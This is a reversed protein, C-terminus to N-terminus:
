FVLVKDAWVTWDTLEDMSGRHAGDVLREATLGRADM